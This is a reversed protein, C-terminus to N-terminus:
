VKSVPEIGTPVVENFFRSFNIKKRNKNKTVQQNVTYIYLAIQNVYPTRCKQGDFVLKQPFISGVVQRKEKVELTDYIKVLQGVSNLTDKLKPLYNSKQENLTTLKNELKKIKEQSERKVVAFDDAEMSGDILLNRAKSIKKDLREIEDLYQKKTKHGSSTLDHYIDRICDKYIDLINEQVKYKFLEKRVAKNVVETRFRVGCSSLCHYYHYYGGKSSKSASGTLPRGCKHCILFGRLPFKEHSIVKVARKRKMRKRGSLVDQVDLFLSESIIGEHKGEVLYEEEEKFAKIKIKGYYIPNRVLYWFQGRSISLGKKNVLKRIQDAALQNEAIQEFAWKVLSAQPEKRAIIKNSYEDRTNIYGIPATGMYRGEKKARRMGQLTNLARRDNEVEPAALYFALMMKQEPISLDLPQEIAQIDVGLKTLTSIMLYADGTNRSFRDWKTFLVMNTDSRNKKILALLKQWEPRDFTRASYDEYIVRGVQINQFVCYKRLVEEQYRQSYGKDAQEDTSVRIYLDATKM